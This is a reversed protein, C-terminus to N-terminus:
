LWNGMLVFPAWYYPHTLYYPLTSDAEAAKLFAQQVRQLAQAKNLADKVQFQYFQQMFLGTSDDNVPWLSALVARAGQQQALAGFGEIESGAKGDGSAGVATECASLTLLDLKDFRYQRRIQALSLHEGTGLLLFSASETGTKFVFHSAIHVVPYTSDLVESLRDATFDQNLYLSGSVVGDADDAGHVIIGELEKPVTPLPNFGEVADSLGLGAVQWEAQRAQALHDAVAPTYNVVAYSAALYQEGDYLAALPIYHLTGDLSVMLVKAGLRQLDEAIPAILSQYLAQAPELPPLLPDQLAQHLALVQQNLVERDLEVTKLLQDEATTLLINLRDAGLMYNILVVGAGLAQLQKQQAQWRLPSLIPPEPMDATQLGQIVLFYSRQVGQYTQQLQQLKETDAKPDHELDTIEVALKSLADSLQTLSTTWHKELQNFGILTHRNDAKVDRGIFDFYEEEKLMALVQQAEPLRGANLLANALHEYVYSKRQVFTKRLEADMNDLGVRLQQLSNVSQKGFFIAMRLYHQQSMLESINSQVFWQLTKQESQSAIHLARFYFQEATKLDGGRQHLVALNNLTNAVRPHLSGLAEERLSLVYQTTAEALEGQGQAKYLAALNNLTTLVDPHREGLTNSWIDLAQRYYDAAQDLERQSQYLFALNSLSTAVSPDETGYAKQRLSLARKFLPEARAFDGMASYMRALNNLPSALEVNDAGLEQERITLARQYLAEAKAYEGLEAYTMALNNLSSALSAHEAGLLEEKIALAQKLLPEAKRYEEQRNYLRALENLSYAVYEHTEGYLKQRIALAEQRLPEAKPFLSQQEYITALNNLAAVRMEDAASLNELATLYAQEAEKTKKQKQLVLGQRLWAEGRQKPCQEALQQYQKFTTSYQQKEFSQDAQKSLKDCNAAFAHQYTLLSLLILAHIKMSLANRNSFFFAVARLCIIIIILLLRLAMSTERLASLAVATM